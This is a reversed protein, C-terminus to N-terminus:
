RTNAADSRCTIPKRKLLYVRHFVLFRSTIYTHCEAKNHGCDYRSVALRRQYMPREFAACRRVDAAAARRVVRCHEPVRRERVPDVAAPQAEEASVDSQATATEASETPKSESKACGVTMLASLLMMVAFLSAFTRKM